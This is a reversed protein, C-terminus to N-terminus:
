NNENDKNNLKQYTDEATKWCMVKFFNKIYNGRQSKHKLYYAHEWVDMGIIPDGKIESYSMLPNDQNPTSHIKLGKKTLSLWAWGSGFQSLATDSFEEKFKQYSGFVKDIEKKLEGVPSTTANPSMLNFYLNHNYVGGANNRVKNDYKKISLLIDEINEVKARDKIADNLKNVYGKHHKTHHERMTEEDIHPELADYPFGLPPLKFGKQELILNSLKIM